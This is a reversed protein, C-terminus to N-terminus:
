HACDFMLIQQRVYSYKERETFEDLIGTFM